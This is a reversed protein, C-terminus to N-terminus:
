EQVAASLEDHGVCVDLAGLNERLQEPTSAAMIPIVGPRSNIMWALVVQNVTAGTARAIRALSRLRTENDPGLYSPHLSRDSRTYAGGLLPSYALLRVNNAACYDLMEPSTPIQAAFEQPMWPNPQLYSYRMQICVYGPWDHGGSILRADHLRWALHNSAGLFRVKGAAVLRDFAALTEELPTDRDDAHAYYLDITDTGLRALSKECEAEIQRARLGQEVGPMPLGVKTALFLRSRNGREKMWRGLLRESEGGEFGPLWSAYKNATDLFGGGAEAYADLLAFSMAADV